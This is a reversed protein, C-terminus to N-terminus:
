GAHAPLRVTAKGPATNEGKQNEVWVELDVLHEGNEVYKRTIKGRATLTDNKLNLGAYRLEVAVTDGSDGIWDHLMNHVYAWRVRGMGFVGPQKAAKAAEDDMHFYIFEDNVAAYRNWNMLDTVRVYTPVEQGERVDEWWLKVAYNLKAM